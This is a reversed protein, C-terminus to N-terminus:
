AKYVKKAIMRIITTIVILSGIVVSTLAVVFLVHNEGTDPLIVIGAVTPVVAVLGGAAGNGLGYM